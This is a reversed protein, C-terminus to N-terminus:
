LTFSFTCILPESLNKPTDRQPPAEVTVYDMDDRGELSLISYRLAASHIASHFKGISSAPLNLSTSRDNKISM